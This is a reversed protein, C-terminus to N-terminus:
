KARRRASHVIEFPENGRDLRRGIFKENFPNFEDVGEYWIEDVFAKRLVATDIAELDLELAQRLAAFLLKKIYAIRGDTAFYLRRGLEQAGFPELKFPINLLAALSWFLQLCETELTVSSNQGLALSRRHSFRRRLQDNIQLVQDTRPLGLLVTPVNLTDILHKLWDGVLYHTKTDGRDHLHQSEDFLLMEVGCARCITIVRHTVASITGKEPYPDGLSTLMARAISSITAAPPISTILVEVVDREPLAQRPHQQILWNCLSTKGTGAEGTILLHNAIGTERFMKLNSEIAEKAAVFPPFPIYQEDFAKLHDSKSTIDM